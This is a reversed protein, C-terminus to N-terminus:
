SEDGILSRRAARLLDDQDEVHWPIFHDTNRLILDIGDPGILPVRFVRDLVEPPLVPGMIPPTTPPQAVPAREFSRSTSRDLGIIEHMSPYTSM